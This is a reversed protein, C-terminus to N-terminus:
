PAGQGAVAHGRPPYYRDHRYRNDLVYGPPQKIVPDRRVADRRQMEHQETARRPQERQETARWPKEKRGRDDDDNRDARVPVAACSLVVALSLVASLLRNIMM